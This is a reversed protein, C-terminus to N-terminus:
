VTICIRATWRQPSYELYVLHTAALLLLLLHDVNRQPMFPRWWCCIMYYMVHQLIDKDSTWADNLLSFAWARYINRIPVTVHQLRHASPRHHMRLCPGTITCHVSETAKGEHETMANSREPLSPSALCFQVLESTNGCATCQSSLHIFLHM